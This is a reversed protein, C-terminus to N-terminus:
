ITARKQRHKNRKDLITQKRKEKFSEVQLISDVGYRKFITDQYKKRIDEDHYHHLSGYKKMCTRRSKEKTEELQFVCDVGYKEQCTQKIKQKISDHQFHCPIGYIEINHERVLQKTNEITCIPCYGGKKIFSRYEKKFMYHCDENQCKGEIRTTAHINHEKYSKILKVQYKICAYLLRKYNKHHITDQISNRRFENMCYECYGQSEKLRRFTKSFDNNCEDTICHGEIISDRTVSTYKYNLKINYQKVFLDLEKKNYKNRNM